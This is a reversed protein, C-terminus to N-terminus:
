DQAEQCQTHLQEWILLIQNLAGSKELARLYPFHVSLGVATIQPM